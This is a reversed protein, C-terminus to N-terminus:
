SKFFGGNALGAWNSDMNYAADCLANRAERAADCAAGYERTVRELDIAAQEKAKYLRESEKQADRLQRAYMEIIM